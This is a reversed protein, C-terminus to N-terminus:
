ELARVGDPLQDGGGAQGLRAGRAVQAQQALRLEHAGADVALTAYVLQHGLTERTGGHPQGGVHAQPLAAEVREAAVEVAPLRVTGSRAVACSRSSSPRM